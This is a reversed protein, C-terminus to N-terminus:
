RRVDDVLPGLLGDRRSAPRPQSLTLFRQLYSEMLRCSGLGRRAVRARRPPATASTHLEHGHPWRHRRQPAPPRHGAWAAGAHPAARQPSRATTSALRETQAPGLRGPRSRTESRLRGHPHFRGPLTAAQEGLRRIPRVFRQPPTTLVLVAVVALAGAALATWAAQRVAASWLDESYLVGPLPRTSPRAGVVPVREVMYTRGGLEIEPQVGPPQSKAGPLGTWDGAAKTTWRWRAPASATRATSFIFEAGSPRKMQRLVPESLPFKTERLTEVVSRLHETLRKARVAGLLRQRCSALLHGAGGRWRPCCCNSKSRADAHTHLAPALAPALALPQPYPAPPQSTLVLVSSGLGLVWSRSWTVRRPRDVCDDFERCCTSAVSVGAPWPGRHPPGCARTKPLSLVVPVGGPSQCSFHM